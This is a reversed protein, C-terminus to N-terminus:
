ERLAIAPDVRAARRAPIVSAILSVSVALTTVSAITLPDFSKVGYLMSSLLKGAAIALALGIGGGILALRLGQRTILALVGNPRAGLALGWVIRGGVHRGVAVVAAGVQGGRAGLFLLFLGVM